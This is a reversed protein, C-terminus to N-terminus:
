IFEVKFGADQLTKISNTVQRSWEKPDYGEPMERVTGDQALLYAQEVFIKADVLGFGTLFRVEKIANIKKVFEEDKNIKIRFNRVNPYKNAVVGFILRAKWDKGLIPTLAEMVEVATDRTYHQKIARMFMASAEDLIGFSDDRAEPDILAM